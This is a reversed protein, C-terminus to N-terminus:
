SREGTRSQIAVPPVILHSRLSLYARTTLTKHPKRRRMRGGGVARPDRGTSVHFTLPLGTEDILAWLCEVVWGIAAAEELGPRAQGSLVRCHGGGRATNGCQLLMSQMLTGNDAVPLLIAEPCIYM